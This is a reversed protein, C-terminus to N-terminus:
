ASVENLDIGLSKFTKRLQQALYIGMKMEDDPTAILDNRVEIMANQLGNKTGHLNLTHAVGDERSYPENIECVFSGDGQLETVCASALTPDDDHIVGIEVHRPEDFYTPTFSHITIVIGQGGKQAIIDALTNTFPVYVANTRADREAPTINANAPVIIKESKAPMASAAEPPRNCDYILRSVTGYVGVADFENVLCRLVGLAGPDYAAHSIKDAANLGLEHYMNPINNSAHECVFVIPSAGNANVVAVPHM